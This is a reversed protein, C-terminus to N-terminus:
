CHHHHYHLHHCHHHPHHDLDLSSSIHLSLGHFVLELLIVSDSSTMNHITPSTVCACSHNSFACARPIHGFQSVILPDTWATRHFEDSALWASLMVVLHVQLLLWIFTFDTVLSEEVVRIVCLVLLFM